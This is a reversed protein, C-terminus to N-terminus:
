SRTSITYHRHLVSGSPGIVTLVPHLRLRQVLEQVEADRGYFRDCEAESFPVM